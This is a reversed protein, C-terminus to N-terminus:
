RESISAGFSQRGFPPNSRLKGHQDFWGPAGDYFIEHRPNPDLSPGGSSLFAKIESIERDSLAYADPLVIEADRLQRLRGGEVQESSIFQPSWGLDEFLKLWGDRTKAQRNHDAEFSSFRRLWTSGDATSELLWDVQISAQSYLIFIPDKEPTARLFLRALPSTMEKLVPSLAKAKPTLAYDDSKWDICDESWWVICGHDGELLLHWLRRRAHNADAEFVTTLIPAGPMFSALIERANGINYPEMWDLAQSLRWLDYGGFADAMQTGEIGVPTQPDIACAAERLDALCHALSIDNYTRFDAWPAFNWRAPSQQATAPHVEAGGVGAL